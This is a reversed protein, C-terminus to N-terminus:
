EKLLWTRTINMEKAVIDAVDYKGPNVSLYEGCYPLNDNENCKIVLMMKKKSRGKGVEM